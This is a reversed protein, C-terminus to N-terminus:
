TLDGHFPVFMHVTDIFPPQGIAADDVKILTMVQMTDDNLSVPIEFQIVTHEPVDTDQVLFKYIQDPDFENINGIRVPSPKATNDDLKIKVVKTTELFGYSLPMDATKLSGVVDAEEFDDDDQLVNKGDQVQPKYMDVDIAFITKYLQNKAANLRQHKVKILQDINM